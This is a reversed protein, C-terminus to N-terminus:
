ADGIVSTFLILIIHINLKNLLIYWYYLVVDCYVYLIMHITPSIKDKKLAVKLLLLYKALKLNIHSPNSRSWKKKRRKKYVMVVFVQTNPCTLIEEKQSQKQWVSFRVRVRLFCSNPIKWSVGWNPQNNLIERATVFM